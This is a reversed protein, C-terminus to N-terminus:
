SRKPPYYLVGNPELLLPPVGRISSLVRGDELELMLWENPISM